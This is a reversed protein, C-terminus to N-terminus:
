VMTNGYSDAMSWAMTRAMLSSTSFIEACKIIRESTEDAMHLQRSRDTEGCCDRRGNASEGEAPQEVKKM